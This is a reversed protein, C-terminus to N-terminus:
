AVTAKIRSHLETLEPEPVNVRFPRIATKDTAPKSPQETVVTPTM